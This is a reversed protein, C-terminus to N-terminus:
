LARRLKYDIYFYTEHVLFGWQSRFTKYRTTPTPSPLASLGLDAAMAMARKMHLPDSVILFRHLRHPRAVQQAYYLNEWTTHSRSETLIDASPVGQHLAYRRAAESEAIQSGKGLGGTFLLKQVQGAHYLVIAHNLRERLVPSPEQGWVAAGLVIAAQAPSRASQSGYIYISAAVWGIGLVIGCAIGFLAKRIPVYRQKLQAVKV